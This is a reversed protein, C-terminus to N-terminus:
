DGTKLRWDPGILRGNATACPEDQRSAVPSQRSDHGVVAREHMSGLNRDRNLELRRLMEHQSEKKDTTQTQYEAKSATKTVQRNATFTQFKVLDAGAKAASEILQKALALDGNHNVGAEAIILTRKTM